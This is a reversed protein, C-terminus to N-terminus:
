VPVNVINAKQTSISEGFAKDLDYSDFMHEGCNIVTKGEPYYYKISKVSLSIPNGATGVGHDPDEVEVEYNERIHNVLTPVTITVRRNSTNFRNLIRVGVTPISAGGAMQPIHMTKSYMGETDFTSSKLSYQKNFNYADMYSYEIVYDGSTIRNGLQIKKGHYDVKYENTSPADTNKSWIPNVTNEGLRTLVLGNPDTVKITVPKGLLFNQTQLHGEGSTFSSEWNSGANERKHEALTTDTIVTLHTILNTDDVGFDHIRSKAGQKFLIKDHSIDDDELLLTGRPTIHFSADSKGTLTFILINTLLSGM